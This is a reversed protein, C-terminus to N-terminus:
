GVQLPMKRFGKSLEFSLSKSAHINGFDVNRNNQRAFVSCNRNTHFVLNAEEFYQILIVIDLDTTNKIRPSDRGQQGPFCGAAQKTTIQM